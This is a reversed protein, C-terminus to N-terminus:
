LANMKEIKSLQEVNKATYNKSDFWSNGIAIWKLKLPSDKIASDQSFYLFM